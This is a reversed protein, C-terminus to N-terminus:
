AKESPMLIKCTGRLNSIEQCILIDFVHFFSSIRLSLIFYLCKNIVCTSLTPTLPLVWWRGRGWLTILIQLEKLDLMTASGPIKLVPRIAGASYVEKPRPITKIGRWMSTYWINKYNTYHICFVYQHCQM